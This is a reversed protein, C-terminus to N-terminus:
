GLQSGQARQAEFFLALIRKDEEITASFQEPKLRRNARYLFLHDGSGEITLHPFAELEQRLKANFIARVAAEDPGRLIFTRSFVPSDAFNIDKQTAWKDGIRSFFNEPFLLFPPLELLSSQMRSITQFYTSRSRGYGTTYSYDFMTFALEPTATAELINSVVKDHGLNAIQCGIPLELDAGTAKRRYTLGLSRAFAEIKDSRMKELVMGIIWVLGVVAFIGVYLGPSASSRTRAVFAAGALLSQPFLLAIFSM